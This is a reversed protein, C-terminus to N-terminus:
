FSPAFHGAIWKHRLNREDLNMGPAAQHKTQHKKPHGALSVLKYFSASCAENCVEGMQQLANTV